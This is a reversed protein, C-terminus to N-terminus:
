DNNKEKKEELYNELLMVAYMLPIVAVVIGLIVVLAGGATNDPFFYTAVEVMGFVALLLYTLMILGAIIRITGGNNLGAKIEKNTKEVFNM